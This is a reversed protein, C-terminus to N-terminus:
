TQNQDLISLFKRKQIKKKLNKSVIILIIQELYFEIEFNWYIHCVLSIFDRKSKINLFFFFFDRKSLTQSNFFIM